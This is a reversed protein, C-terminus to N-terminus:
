RMPPDSKRRTRAGRQHQKVDERLPGCLKCACVGQRERDTILSITGHKLEGAAYAECHIYSIEKLKLASEMSLAYDAGRGIFFIDNNDKYKKAIAACAKESDLAKQIMKPAMDLLEATYAKTKQM